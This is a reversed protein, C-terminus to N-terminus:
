RGDNLLQTSNVSAYCLDEGNLCDQVSDWLMQQPLKVAHGLNSICKFGIGNSWGDDEECGNCGIQDFM